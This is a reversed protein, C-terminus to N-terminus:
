TTNPCRSRRTLSGMHKSFRRATPSRFGICIRSCTFAHVPPSFPRCRDTVVAHGSRITPSMNLDRYLLGTCPLCTRYQVYAIYIAQPPPRGRAAKRRTATKQKNVDIRSTQSVYTANTSQWRSSTPCLYTHKRFFFLSFSQM